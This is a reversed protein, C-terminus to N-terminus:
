GFPRHRGLQEVGIAAVTMAVVTVAAAPATPTLFILASSIISIALILRLAHDLM